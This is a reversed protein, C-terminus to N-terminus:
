FYGGEHHNQDHGANVDSLYAPPHSSDVKLEEDKNIIPSQKTELAVNQLVNKTKGQGRNQITWFIYLRKSIKAQGIKCTERLQGVSIKKLNM